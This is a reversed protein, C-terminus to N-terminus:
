TLRIYSAKLQQIYIVVGRKPFFPLLIGTLYDLLSLSLSLSLFLSLFFSLPLLIGTLYDLLGKMIWSAQTGVIETGVVLSLCPMGRVLNFCAISTVLGLCPM